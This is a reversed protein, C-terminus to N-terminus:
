RAPPQQTVARSYPESAADATAAQTSAQLSPSVPQVSCRCFTPPDTSMQRAHMGSRCQRPHGVHQPGTEGQGAPLVQKALAARCHMRKVGPSASSSPGSKAASDAAAAPGKSGPAMSQSSSSSCILPMGAPPLCVPTAALVGASSAGVAASAGAGWSAAKSAEPSSASCCRSLM